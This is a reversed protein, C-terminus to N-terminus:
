YFELKNYVHISISLIVDITYPRNYYLENSILDKKKKGLKFSSNINNSILPLTLDTIEKTIQSPRRFDKVSLTLAIHQPSNGNLSFAMNKQPKNLKYIGSGM